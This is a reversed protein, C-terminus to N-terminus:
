ADYVRMFKKGKKKEVLEALKDSFKERSKRSKVQETLVRLVNEDVKETKKTETFIVKKVMKSNFKDKLFKKLRPIDWVASIQQQVRYEKNNYPLVQIDLEEYKEFINENM